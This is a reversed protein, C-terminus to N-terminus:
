VVGYLRMFSSPAFVSTATPMYLRISKLPQTNYWIFDEWASVLNQTPQNWSYHLRASKWVYPSDPNFIAMEGMGMSGPQALGGIQAINRAAANRASTTSTFWQFESIRYDADTVDDNFAVSVGEGTGGSSVLSYTIYLEYYGSPVVFTWGNLGVVSPAAILVRDGLSPHQSGLFPIM